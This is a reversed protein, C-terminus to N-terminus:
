LDQLMARRSLGELYGWGPVTVAKLACVGSCLCKFQSCFVCVPDLLCHKIWGFPHKSLNRTLCCPCVCKWCCTLSNFAKDCLAVRKKRQGRGCPTAQQWSARLLWARCLTSPQERLPVQGMCGFLVLWSQSCLSVAGREELLSVPCSAWLSDQLDWCAEGLSWGSTTGDARKM